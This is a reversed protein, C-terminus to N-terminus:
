WGPFFDGPYSSFNAGAPNGHLPSFLLPYPDKSYMLMIGISNSDNIKYDFGGFFVTSTNLLKDSYTLVFPKSHMLGGYLTWRDNVKFSGAAYLSLSSQPKIINSYNNQFFQVNSFLVGAHISIRETLPQKFEPNLFVSNGSLQNSGFFTTGANLRFSSQRNLPLPNEQAVVSMVFLFSILIFSPTKTNM